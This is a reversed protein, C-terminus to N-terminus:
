TSKEYRLKEFRRRIEAKTWKRDGGDAKQDFFHNSQDVVPRIGMKPLTTGSSEREENVCPRAQREGWRQVLNKGPGNVKRFKM